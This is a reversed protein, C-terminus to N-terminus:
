CKRAPIFKNFKFGNEFIIKHHIKTTLVNWKVSQIMM